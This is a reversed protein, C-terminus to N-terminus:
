ATPCPRPSPARSTTTGAKTWSGANRQASHAQEADTLPRSGPGLYPTPRTVSTLHIGYMKDHHAYGLRINGRRRHRRGPGLVQFIGPKRDDTQDVHRGSEPGAYRTRQVSPLVRLRPAVAGRRRIRRRSRRRSQGPGGASPNDQDNRLLLEAVRPHHGFAHSQPRRGAGPHLPHRARGGREQFPSVRQAEEGPRALRLRGAM